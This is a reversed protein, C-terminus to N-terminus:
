CWLNMAKHYREETRAGWVDAKNKREGWLGAELVKRTLMFSFMAVSLKQPKPKLAWVDPLSDPSEWYLIWFGSFPVRDWNPWTNEGPDILLAWLCSGLLLNHDDWMSEYVGSFPPWVPIGRHNDMPVTNPNPNCTRFFSLHPLLWLNAM